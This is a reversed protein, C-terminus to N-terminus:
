IGPTPLGRLTQEIRNLLEGPEYHTPDNWAALAHLLNIPQVTLQLGLLVTNITDTSSSDIAHYAIEVQMSGGSVGNSIMKPTISDIRERRLEIPDGKALRVTLASPTIRLFCRRWMRVTALVSIPMAGLLLIVGDFRLWAPNGPALGAFLSGIAFTPLGVNLFYANGEYWPIYRCTIDGETRSVGARFMRRRGFVLLMAVPLLLVAFYWPFGNLAAVLVLLCLAGGLTYRLISRWQRKAASGAM